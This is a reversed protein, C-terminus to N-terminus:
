QVDAILEITCSVVYYYPAKRSYQEHELLVRIILVNKLYM